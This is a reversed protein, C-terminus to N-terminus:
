PRSHECGLCELQRDALRTAVLKSEHRDKTEDRRASSSSLGREAKERKRADEDSAGLQSTRKWGRMERQKSYERLRLELEALVNMEGNQVKQKFPANLVWVSVGCAGVSGRVFWTTM